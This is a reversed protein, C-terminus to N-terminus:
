SDIANYQDALNTIEQASDEVQPLFSLSNIEKYHYKGSYKYPECEKSTHVTYKSTKNSLLFERSDSINGSDGETFIVKSINVAKENKKCRIPTNDILDQHKNMDTITGTISNDRKISSYTEACDKQYDEQNDTIDLYDTITFLNNYFNLDDVKASVKKYIYKTLADIESLDVRKLYKRKNIYVLDELIFIIRKLIEDGTFSVMTTLEKRGPEKSDLISSKINQSIHKTSVNWNDDMNITLYRDLLESCEYDKILKLANNEINRYMTNIYASESKMKIFDITGILRSINNINLKIFKDFGKQSINFSRTHIIVKIQTNFGDDLHVAKSSGSFSMILIVLLILSILIVGFCLKYHEYNAPM